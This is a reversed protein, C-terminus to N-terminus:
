EGVRGRTVPKKAAGSPRGRSPESCPTGEAALARSLEHRARHLRTRVAGPRLGLQTAIQQTDREEWYRLRLLHASGEPLGGLAHRLRHHAGERDITTCPSPAAALLAEPEAHHDHRARARAQDRRHRLLLKHAIAHVFGGLSVPRLRPMADLAVVLTRQALDDADAPSPVRRAFFRRLPVLQGCLAAAPPPTSPARPAFAVERPHPRPMPGLYRGGLGMTAHARDIERPRRGFTTGCGFTTRRGFTTGDGPSGFFLAGLM